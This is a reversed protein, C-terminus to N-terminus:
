DHSILDTSSSSNEFNFCFECIKFLRLDSFSFISPNGFERLNPNRSLQQGKIIKPDTSKRPIVKSLRTSRIPSLHVLSVRDVRTYRCGTKLMKALEDYHLDIPHERDSLEVSYRCLVLLIVRIYHPFYEPESPHWGRLPVPFECPESFRMRIFVHKVSLRSLIVIRNDQSVFTPETSTCGALSLRVLALSPRRFSLLTGTM